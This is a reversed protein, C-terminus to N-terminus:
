LKDASPFPLLTASCLLEPFVTKAQHRCSEPAQRQCSSRQASHINERPYAGSASRASPLLSRRWCTYKKCGWPWWAPLFRRQQEDCLRRQWPSPQHALASSAPLADDAWPSECLEEPALPWRPRSSQPASFLTARSPRSGPLNERPPAPKRTQFPSSCRRKGNEGVLLVKLSGQLIQRGSRLRRLQRAQPLVEDDVFKLDDLRARMAGIRNQQNNRCQALRLQDAQSRARSRSPEIHEALDVIGGLQLARQVCTELRDSDVIAIQVRKADIQIRRQLQDLANRRTHDLDRLAPDLTSFIDRSQSLSPNSANRMPSDSIRAACGPSSSRPNSPCATEALHNSIHILIQPVVLMSSARALRAAPALASPNM